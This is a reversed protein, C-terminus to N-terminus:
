CIRMTNETVKNSLLLYPVDPFNKSQLTEHLYVGNPAIAESQSLIAVIKLKNKSWDISFELGNKYQKLEAGGFDCQSISAFTSKDVNLLAIVGENRPLPSNDM